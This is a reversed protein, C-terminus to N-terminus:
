ADEEIPWRAKHALAVSRNKKCLARVRDPYLDAATESWDFTTKGDPSIGMRLIEAVPELKKVWEKSRILHIFRAANIAVGDDFHVRFTRALAEIQDRFVQLEGHFALLDALKRRGPADLTDEVKKLDDCNGSVIKIKPDIFDNLITYLTQDTLAPWYLWLVYSGSATGIPWYVPAARQAASYEKLHRSFFNKKLWDTVDVGDCLGFDDLVRHIASALDMKHGPDMVFIGANDIFPAEGAPVRGPALLPYPEFPAPDVPYPRDETALRRDFRGFAVGVAWTLLADMDDKEDSLTVERSKEQKPLVKSVFGYLLDVKDDMERQTEAITRLEVVPNLRGLATQIKMPLLFAHSTENVSDLRRRACFNKKALAALTAKDVDSLPPVPALGLMGCEYCSDGTSRPLQLGMVNQYARSNLIASLSLLELENNENCFVCSGKRDFIGDYPFLRLQLSKARHSWTLGPRFYDGINKVVFSYNGKLYPYKFCIDAKIEEGENNWNVYTCVDGYFPVAEGGKALPRWNKTAREVESSLRVYRENNGTALGQKAVITPSWKAYAKIVEDDTNYALVKGPLKTFEDLTKEYLHLIPAEPQASQRRCLELLHGEKADKPQATADLFFSKEEWMKQAGNRLGLVYAVSEVLANDMVDLGLDAFVPLRGCDFVAQQRWKELSGLFFVSRSTIAGVYGRDALLEQARLIFMGIIERKTTPYLEGLAEKSGDTPSGFPPNMVIVDYRKRCFDILRLCESANRAYLREEFSHGVNHEYTALANGLLDRQRQWRSEPKEFLSLNPDEGEDDVTLELNRELKLLFGTEPVLRLNEFMAALRIGFCAEDQLKELVEKEAPPALAAVVLGTGVVPRKVGPIGMAQFARQARLWLALSAIQTARVDIDVGHINHRIILGPVEALFAEKDDSSFVDPLSTEGRTDLQRGVDEHLWDWAEEYIALLLDFAYLGFHMSGCAPDLVRITRPDRLRATAGQAPRCNILYRCLTLLKTVGRTEEVWLRGLTNDLLFEVVYRPTFFQNRVALEHSNKPNVNKKGRMTSFDEENNFYQFIWGITEDECWKDVSNILNLLETFARESPFLLGFPETRDFIQPLDGSLEDFLSKLYKVYKEYPDGLANKVIFDYNRVARSALGSALSEQFVGREEAMRLACIRHLFTQTQERLIRKLVEKDSANGDQLKYHRFIERLDSATEYASLSLFGLNSLEAVRGTAPDMAYIAQMQRLFDQELIRRAEKVFNNLSKRAKDNFPM